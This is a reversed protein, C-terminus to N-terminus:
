KSAKYIFRLQLEKSDIMKVKLLYQRGDKFSKIDRLDVNYKNVGTEATLSPLNKIKEGPRELDVIIYDLKQSQYFNNFSFRLIQNAVYFGGDQYEKIERYSDADINPKEEDCKIQFAWIESKSLITKGAYVSVQWVYKKDKSLDHANPPYYLTNGIINMQNIIPLNYSIAESPSQKSLIETLIIRFRANNAMPIPPQWILNPRVNCIEDEDVPNILLLPTLPELKYDFCNEYVEGGPQNKDNLVAVEYCYEYEGEPFKGTQKLQEAYPSNGFTLSSGSFNRKNILNIGQQLLLAPTKIVVISSINQKVRITVTVRTPLASQNILQVFSLGEITQGYIAPIFNIAIQSRVSLSLLLFLIIKILAKM